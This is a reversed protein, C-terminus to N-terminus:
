RVRNPVGISRSPRRARRGIGAPLRRGPLPTPRTSGSAEHVLYIPPMSASCGACGPGTCTLERSRGAMWLSCRRGPSSRNTKPRKPPRFSAQEKAPCGNRASRCLRSGSSSASWLTTSISYALVSCHFVVLTAAKPAREALRALDHRLDGKVVRPPDRRAVRVAADLLQARRGEGPWVLTALWAVDQPDTVDLPNIDLGARRVVELPRTPIPTRESARCAFLPADASGDVPPITSRGYDYAYRDILLCLGASAGVEVLALPQPLQALLPFLIACRAPENTQTRRGRMVAHIEERRHFYFDRFQEWDEALGCVYRVAALLLQPQRKAMPLECVSALLERDGAAGRGIEEYLPSRGTAEHEAFWWYWEGLDAVGDEQM